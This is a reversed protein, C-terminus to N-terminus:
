GGEGCQVAPADSEHQHLDHAAPAAERRLFLAEDVGGTEGEEDGRYDHNGYVVDLADECACLETMGTAGKRTTGAFAPVGCGRETM